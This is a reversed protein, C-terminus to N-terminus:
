IILWEMPKQIAKDYASSAGLGDLTHVWTPPFIPYTASIPGMIKCM